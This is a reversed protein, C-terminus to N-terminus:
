RFIDSAEAEDISKQADDALLLRRKVLAAAASRVHNVYDEHSKYREEISLRPDHNAAREAATAPFPIYGGTLPCFQGKRFGSKVINWGTYTGLPVQGLVSQIGGIENGDDNLTPLVAKAAGIVRPPERSPVGSLDNTRFSPGLDYTLNPNFASHPLPVEPIRPFSALVAASDALTRERLTPYISDPPLTKEVVWERLDELLARRIPNEPNPNSALVCNAIPRGVRSFGGGGGGHTTGAVYYRRVNSPLPLDEKATTGVFGLSARLSYFESSGLLEMIKPCTKSAACRDMEGGDPNHRVPDAAHTWWDVGDTGLEYLMSTGGPVGFRVNVPTQRASVIPMVGDFVIRGDEDQNFGLNIFTRLMNGSQSVGTAIVDRINGFVPNKFGSADDRRGRFFANLDRMAALGLGLVLPDKATYHLEYLLAPDAGEKLCIRAADPKGPFVQHDCDGWAWEDAAVTSIGGTVGDQDEYRMTQLVAHHTDLDVPTPPVDNAGYTMSHSLLLTHEGAVQDIFRAFVPGTLPTGDPQHAVPVRVMEGHTGNNARGGFPIDGQWGSVLYFDGSSYDRPMVEGGRNVVDYFLVANPSPRLPAYLTFTATYEVMGRANRDALDLDQIIRNHADRPDVEGFAWGQIVQYSAPVRKATEAATPQVQIRIIRAEAVSGAFILLLCAIWLSSTLRM